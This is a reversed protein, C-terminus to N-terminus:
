DKNSQLLWGVCLQISTTNASLGTRQEGRLCIRQMESNFVTNAAPRDKILNLSDRDIKLKSLLLHAKKLIIFAHQVGDLANQM